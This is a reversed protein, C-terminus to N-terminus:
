SCRRRTPSPGTRSWCGRRRRPRAAVPDAPRPRRRAAPPRGRPDAPRGAAAPRPAAGAARDVAAMTPAAAPARCGTAAPQGPRRHRGAVSTGACLAVTVRSGARAPAAIRPPGSPTSGSSCTVAKTVSCSAATSRSPRLTQTSTGSACGCSGAAAAARRRGRHAAPRALRTVTRTASPVCAGILSAAAPRPVEAASRVPVVTSLWSHASGAVNTERPVMGARAPRRATRRGAPRSGDVDPEVPGDDLVVDREDDARDERVLHDAEGAAVLVEERADGALLDDVQRVPQARQDGAGVDDAGAADVGTRASISSAAASIGAASGRATRRRGTPCRRRQVGDGEALRARGPGRRGLDGRLGM